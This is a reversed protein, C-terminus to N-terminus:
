KADKDQQQERDSENGQYSVNEISTSPSPHIVGIDSLIAPVVVTVLTRTTRLGNFVMGIPMRMLHASFMGRMM